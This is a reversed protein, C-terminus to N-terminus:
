GPLISGVEAAADPGYAGEIRSLAVARDFLWEQTGVTELVSVAVFSGLQACRELGLGKTLGAIFGARFGDGVGTPDAKVSEPVAAVHISDGNASVIEVGKEGLTTIRMGVRSLVEAESWGTKRLLLTWEYDNSFLYDAGGIFERIQAGDMRALQQSPDVAFPYGRQRCEEAHRLMAEPDDPSILVLDLGGVRDAIPALEIQRAEAMAGAYFSAIQCMDDDTTCVFRATHAVESVHVGACNVGHRELWSRYDAFDAGVAGVLVPRCGLVAMGFAINPGIGGRRVVLDDVLFSLSIRHLQDAVLQDAFRGPFHM